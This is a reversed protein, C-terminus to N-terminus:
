KEKKNYKLGFIYVLRLAIVHSHQKRGLYKPMEGDGRIPVISYQFRPNVFLGKWVRLKGDLIFDVAYKRFPYKTEDFKQDPYITATESSRVLRAYSFGAGIHNKGPFFYNILVPVEAYTLQARYNSVFIGKEGNDIAEKGYAGRQTYLIEISAALESSFSTYVIGGLNLGAKDFGKYNDGDIQSFNAGGVPGGFFTRENDMYYNSQADATATCFALSCFTVLRYISQRYKKYSM